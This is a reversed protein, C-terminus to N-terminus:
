YILIFLLVIYSFFFYFTSLFISFAMGQLWLSLSFDHLYDVAHLWATSRFRSSCTSDLSPASCRHQLALVRTMSQGCSTLVVPRSRHGESVVFVSHWTLQRILRDAKRSDIFFLPL